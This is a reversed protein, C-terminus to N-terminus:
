DNSDGKADKPQGNSGFTQISNSTYHGAVIKTNSFRKQEKWNYKPIDLKITSPPRSLDSPKLM